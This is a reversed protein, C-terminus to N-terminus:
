KKEYSVDRFSQKEDIVNNQNVVCEKQGKEDEKCSKHNSKRAFYGSIRAIISESKIGNKTEVGSIINNECCLNDEKNM